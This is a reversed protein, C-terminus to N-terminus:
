HLVRSHSADDYYNLVATAAERVLEAENTSGTPDPSIDPNNGTSSIAQAFTLDTLTPNLWTHAVPSDLTFFADFKQSGVAGAFGGSDTFADDELLRAVARHRGCHTAM